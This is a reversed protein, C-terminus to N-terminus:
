AASPVAADVARRRRFFKGLHMCFQLLLGATMAICAIYPIAWSPNQVVQLISTKDDKEFGAQYFTLGAYRLPNNMSILAERDDQGSVSKVAVRSSFNKPIDTGPYRDHNFDILRVSFPLYRRATRLGMKWKRGAFTFDQFKTFHTSVLFVGLSESGSSVEIYAAPENTENPKYTTPLPTALLRGGQGAGAGASSNDMASNPYYHKIDLRFPLRPHQIVPRGLISSEPFTVVDDFAADTTDIVALEAGQYSEAFNRTEGEGLRMFYDKQWIGSLLEGVLLLILGAHTLFVGFKSWKLTFRYIHAAILNVLMLGGILYGGPFVPLAIGGVELYVMFTRFYKAQVAWIGLNVQDLTAVFVLIMGLILLTVTLKLSVLVDRLQTLIPIM